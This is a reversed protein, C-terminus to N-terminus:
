KDSASMLVEVLPIRIRLPPLADNRELPITEMIRIPAEFVHTIVFTM